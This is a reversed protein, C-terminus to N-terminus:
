RVVRPGVAPGTAVAQRLGEMIQDRPGDRAVLGRDIVILRDVLQLMNQRHTAVILTISRDVGSNLRDILQRESQLDMSSSPEDLFLVRPQRLFVRALAISQRQGGSLKSGREGVIMDYGRPHSSVFGDVGALQAAQVIEEDTAGPRAMVINERVTGFFLDADQVVLAVAKRVEHPHYQRIDVGDLLIEGKDPEYLGTLLRGFTTKGSGIRGIIGVREGPSISLRLSRITPSTTGPYSFDVDRFEIHGHDISRNVFGVRAIREDQKSMIDDFHKFALRVYHIRSFAMAIQSLPAVMRGSLMVVAIIAGMTMEGASFLYVGAVIVLVSVLQQVFATLNLGVSSLHKAEESSLAAARAYQEWRGIIYGEARISKVTELGSVSEVLVSHRLASEDQANRVVESLRGQLAAGLVIVLALAALPIAVIWGGLAYIVLAFVVFFSLDVFLMLTSSSFFERVIEYEQMRNALVGSTTARDALRTCLIKEILNSAVQIDIKRGVRDIIRARAIKLCVDFVLAIVIGTVFVWLTAMAKNPLVRDYVNMVFLPSLLAITNIVAAAVIIMTYSRVYNRAVSWFWAGPKATHDRVSGDPVAFTPTLRVCTGAYASELESPALEMIRDFEPLYVNVKAADASKLLVLPSGDKRVLIAPLDLRVLDRVKASKIKARLGIREAAKPILTLTLQGASDLPLGATLVTPAVSRGYHSAVFQLCSLHLDGGLSPQSATQVLYPSSNQM